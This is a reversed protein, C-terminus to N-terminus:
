MMKLAQKVLDEVPLDNGDRKAITDLAKEATAKNFGLALLATLAETRNTNLNGLLSSPLGSTAKAIKGRLDVIIRQATKEGIGKIGKLAALNATAIAQEIDNVTLASLMLLATNGGVGSVSLLHKFMDREAAEAFAFLLQADERYIAHTLLRVAQGINPLKSYTALSIGCYYGVGGCEVIAYAPTKETLTGNLHWIM